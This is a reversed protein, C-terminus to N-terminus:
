ETFCINCRRSVERQDIAINRECTVGVMTNGSSNRGVTVEWCHIGHTWGISGLVLAYHNQYHTVTITDDATEQLLPSCFEMDFKFVSNRYTELAEDITPTHGYDRQVLLQWLIGSSAAVNWCRCVLACGLGIDKVPLFSFITVLIDEVDM